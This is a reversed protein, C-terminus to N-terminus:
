LNILKDGITVLMILIAFIRNLDFSVGAKEMGYKKIIFFQAPMLLMSIATGAGFFWGAETVFVLLAFGPVMLAYCVKCLTLAFKVGFVSPVSKMNMKRDYEVDQSSYIMEYGVTWVFTIGALVLARPDKWSSFLAWGAVPVACFVAALFMHCFFTFRKTFSYAFSLVVPIPLLLLYFPDIMATSVLTVVVCFGVVAVAEWVTLSGEVLPRDFSRPNIKDLKIDTLGNFANGAMLGFTSAVVFWLLRGLPPIGESALFAAVVGFPIILQPKNMRCLKIVAYLKKFFINKMRKRGKQRFKDCINYWKGHLFDLANVIKGGM